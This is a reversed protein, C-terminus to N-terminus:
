LYSNVIQYIEEKGNVDPQTSQGKLMDKGNKWRRMHNLYRNDNRTEYHQYLLYEQIVRAHSEPIKLKDNEDLLVSLYYVHVEEATISSDFYIYGNAIQIDGWYNNNDNGHRFMVNNVTRPFYSGHREDNRIKIANPESFRIFGCPLKAMKHPTDCIDLVCDRYETLDFSPIAKIAEQIYYRLVADSATNTIGLKMKAGYLVQDSTTYSYKGFSM